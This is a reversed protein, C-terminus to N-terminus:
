AHPAGERAIGHLFTLTQAELQCSECIGLGMEAAQCGPVELLMAQWRDALYAAALRVGGHEVAALEALPGAALDLVPAPEPEPAQGGRGRVVIALATGLRAWRAREASRM